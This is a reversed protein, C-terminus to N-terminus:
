RFNKNVAMNFIKTNIHSINEDVVRGTKMLWRQFLQMAEKVIQQGIKIRKWRTSSKSIRIVM